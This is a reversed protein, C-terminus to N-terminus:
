PAGSGAANVLAQKQRRIAAAEPHFVEPGALYIRRPM